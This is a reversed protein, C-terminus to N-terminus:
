QDLLTAMVKALVLVQEVDLRVHVVLVHECGVANIVLEVAFEEVLEREFHQWEFADIQVVFLEFQQVEQVTQRLM